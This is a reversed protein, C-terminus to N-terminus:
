CCFNFFIVFIKGLTFIFYIHKFSIEHNLFMHFFPKTFVPFPSTFNQASFLLFGHYVNKLFIYKLKKRLRRDRHRLNLNFLRTHTTM